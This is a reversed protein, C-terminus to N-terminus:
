IRWTWNNQILVILDYRCEYLLLIHAMKACIVVYRYEVYIIFGGLYGMVFFVNKYYKVTWFMCFHLIALIDNCATFHFKLSLKLANQGNHFDAFHM